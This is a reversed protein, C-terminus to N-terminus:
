LSAAVYPKGVLISMLSALITGAAIEVLSLTALGAILATLGLALVALLEVSLYRSGRGHLVRLVHRLINGGAGGLFDLITRTIMMSSM